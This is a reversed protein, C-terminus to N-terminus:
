LREEVGQMIERYQLLADIGLLYSNIGFVAIFGERVAAIMSRQRFEERGLINSLHVEIVTIDIARSTNIRYVAHRYIPFFASGSIPEKVM